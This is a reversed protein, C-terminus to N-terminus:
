YNLATAFALKLQFVLNEVLDFRSLLTFRNVVAFHSIDVFFQPINHKFKQRVYILLATLVLSDNSQKRIRQQLVTVKGKNNRSQNTSLTPRLRLNSYGGSQKNTSKSESMQFGFFNLVTNGGHKKAIFDGKDIFLYQCLFASWTIGRDGVSLFPHVTQWDMVCFSLEYHLEQTYIRELREVVFVSLM